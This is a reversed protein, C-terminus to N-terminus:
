EAVPYSFFFSTANDQVSLLCKVCV